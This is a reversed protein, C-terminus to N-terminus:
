SNRHAGMYKSLDSEVYDKLRSNSDQYYEQLCILESPSILSKKVILFKLIKRAIKLLTNNIQIIPFPNLESKKFYNLRRMMKIDANSFSRNIVTKQSAPYFQSIKLFKSLAGLFDRPAESFQEYTLVLVQSRGFLQVYKEILLDYEYMDKSFSVTNWHTANLLDSASGLYGETVLQKYISMFMDVQNRICIIIQAHPFCNHIREAITYSDYGGSCPYGSLREASVVNVTPNHNTCEALQQEFISVCEQPNFKRDTSNILYRLFNDDWPQRFNVVLNLQPHKSFYQTQLWTTATKHHGIHFVLHNSM